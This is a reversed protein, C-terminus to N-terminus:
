SNGIKAESNVKESEGKPQDAAMACASLAVMMALAACALLYTKKKVM